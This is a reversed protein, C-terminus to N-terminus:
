SRDNITNKEQQGIGGQSKQSSLTEIAMRLTDRMHEVGRVREGILELGDIAMRLADRILEARPM